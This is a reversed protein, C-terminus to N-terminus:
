SEKHDLPNDPPNNTNPDALTSSPYAITIYKM